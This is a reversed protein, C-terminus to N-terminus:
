SICFIFGMELVPFLTKHDMWTNESKILPQIGYNCAGEVIGCNTHFILCIFVIQLALEPDIGASELLFM